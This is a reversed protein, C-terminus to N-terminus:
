QEKKVQEYINGIIERESDNYHFHCTISWGDGNIYFEAPSYEVIGKTYHCRESIDEDEHYVEVIDGEYIDKGNKDKLGTFQGVTSPDVMDKFNRHSYVNSSPKFIWRIFVGSPEHALDGYVWEGNDIRKGRFKIQRLEM